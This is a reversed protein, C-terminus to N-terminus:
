DLDLRMKDYELQDRIPRLLVSWFMTSQRIPDMKYLDDFQEYDDVRFVTAAAASNANSKDILCFDNTGWCHTVIGDHILMSTYDHWWMVKEHHILKTADDWMTIYEEPNVGLLLIEIKDGRNWSYHLDTKPNEPQMYEYKGAFDPANNFLTRKQEYIEMRKKDKKDGLFQKKHTEYRKLDSDRDELLTSLPTTVYRSCSRLPDNALLNDFEDWSDVDYVAILLGQSPSPESRSLLQHSGWVNTIAGSKYLDRVYSHWDIVRRKREKQRSKDWSPYDEPNNIWVMVQPM